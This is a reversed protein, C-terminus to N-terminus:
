GLFAQLPCASCKPTSKRCHDKATRVLLAHYEGFLVTDAPLASSFLDQLEDYGSGEALLGHRSAIRATYADVVFVPLDLAYLLICDATEPGIGKVRLLAPRLRELPQGRLMPLAPDAMDTDTRRAEDAMFQLLNRLRAAKIRYYGAPRLLEALRAEPVALMAAPRLLDERRLNAIAKEVNGWNTNQTLVAGVAVEFPSDGPWWHSEGLAAFMAEYMHRLLKSRSMPM